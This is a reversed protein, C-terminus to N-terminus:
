AKMWSSIASVHVESVVLIGEEERIVVSSFFYVLAILDV